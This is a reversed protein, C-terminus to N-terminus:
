KILVIKQTLVESNTSLRLMYIGSSYSSANWDFSYSGMSLVDHTIEQVFAGNIDYVTLNVLSSQNLEFAIHISPNFPNPYATLVNFQVPIEEMIGVMQVANPAYSQIDGHLKHTNGSPDVYEFRPIDGINCFSVTEENSDVGMVPVDIIEDNWQRAGSLTNGCYSLIYGGSNFGSLDMFYFKKATSLYVKYEEPLELKEVDAVRSMSNNGEQYSFSVDNNAYFWYGKGGRFAGLSGVWTGNMTQYAAESEGIIYDIYPKTTSDLGEEISVYGPSPYSILNLYETLHYVKTPDLPIGNISITEATDSPIRLWYGSYTDLDILSWGM